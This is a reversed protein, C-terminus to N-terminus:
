RSGGAARMKKEAADLYRSQVAMETDAFDEPWDGYRGEADLERTTIETVGKANREFWHLIVDETPLRGEAALAQVATLLLISHTEAIVRVGRKAAAALVEALAVQAKPHLHIEPQELFVLQGPEATLLAVLVPLTQSVGFGVDAINVLDQAGGRRAHPLRGVSVELESANPQRVQVKWTLGLAELQSGLEKLKEPEEEQWHQLVSAVYPEFPGPFRNGVATIQYARQPNGRLGRVHIVKTIQEELSDVQHDARFPWDDVSRLVWNLLDDRRMSLRLFCRERRVVLTGQDLPYGEIASQPLLDKITLEPLLWLGRNKEQIRTGTLEFRRDSQAQFLSMVELNETLRAGFEMPGPQDKSLGRPRLQETSTFELHPGSLLLPGPDFPAELTQKLLLLPQVASSKGSSNAGALLTLPRIPIRFLDEGALSKFNRVILEEIWPSERSDPFQRVEAM